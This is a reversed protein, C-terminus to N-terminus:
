WSSEHQVRGARIEFADVARLRVERGDGALGDFERALHCTEAREVLAWPGDVILLKPM